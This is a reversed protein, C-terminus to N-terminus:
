GDAGGKKDWARLLEQLEPRALLAKRASEDSLLANLRAANEPTLRGTLANKDGREIAATLEEASTGLRRSAEQLLARKQADNLPPTNM